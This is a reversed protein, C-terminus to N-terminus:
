TLALEDPACGLYGLLVLRGGLLRGVAWALQVKMYFEFMKKSAQLEKGSLMKDYNAPKQTSFFLKGEAHLFQNVAAVRQMLARDGSGTDAMMACVDVAYTYHHVDVLEQQGVEFQPM